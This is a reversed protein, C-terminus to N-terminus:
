TRQDKSEDLRFHEFSRPLPEQTGERELVVDREHTIVGIPTLPLDGILRRVHALRGRFAPPATFALEYDEGGALAASVPDAGVQVFWDRAEPDIPIRDAAIRAGVGSADTVQHVADALGDSLDICARAARNRGLALGLRVRPEPRLFRQRCRDTAPVTRGATGRLAALGAAAGGVQGSVYLLDGPRAGSRTLVRRRWVSGTVTVDVSIPGTSGAINGGVLATHYRGALALLADVLADVEAVCMRPPIALSLLAHRPAGGMAALDSLNVALAKHGIDAASAFALDFHIGDVLADTTIVTLAGRDPAVVAADDGIGM